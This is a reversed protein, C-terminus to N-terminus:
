RHSVTGAPEDRREDAQPKHLPTWDFSQGRLHAAALGLSMGVGLELGGFVGTQWASPGLQALAGPALTGGSWAALAALILGGLVATGAAVLVLDLPTDFPPTARRLVRHTLFGSAAGALVPIVVLAYAIAPSHTPVIALLPVGPLGTQLGSGPAVAGGGLAFGPGILWSMAWLVANPLFALQALTLTVGGLYGAQLAEYLSVAKGFHGFILLAVLLGSAAILLAVAATAARLSAALATRLDARLARALALPVHERNRAWDLAVGLAVGIAFTLGAVPAAQGVVPGFVDARATLAVIWAIFAFGVVAAIAGTLVFSTEAARRGVRAGMLVTFLAVGLGAITVTFSPVAGPLGLSLATLRDLDVHADVGLGLLWADTAARWIVAWSTSMHYQVAWVLSLPALAVGIGIAATILAEFAALFAVVARSM